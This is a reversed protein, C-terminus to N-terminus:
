EGKQGYATLMARLKSCDVQLDDDNSAAAGENNLEVKRVLQFAAVLLESPVIRHGSAEIAAIVAYPAKDFGSISAGYLDSDWLEITDRLAGEITERLDDM